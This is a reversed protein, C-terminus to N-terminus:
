PQKVWPGSTFDAKEPACDDQIATLTLAKGDFAWQYTATGTCVGGSTETFSIRNGSVAWNGEARVGADPVIQTFHGGDILILTETGRLPTANKYTGLPLEAPSGSCAVGLVLVFPVLAVLFLRKM